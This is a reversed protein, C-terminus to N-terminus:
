NFLNGQGPIPLLEHFKVLSYDTNLYVGSDEDLEQNIILDVKLKAANYFSYVKNKVDEIFDKDEVKVDIPNGEYAVKWKTKGTFDPRCISLVADTKKVTRKTEQNEEKNAELQSARIKTATEKLETEKIEAIVKKNKDMLKLGTVGETQAADTVINQIITVPAYYVPGHYHNETKSNDVSSSNDIVKVELVTSAGKNNKFEYKKVKNDGGIHKGQKFKEGAFLKVLEFMNKFTEIVTPISQVILPVQGTMYLENLALPIDFSGEKFPQVKIELDNGSEIQSIERLSKSTNQLTKILVNVDIESSGDYKITLDANKLNEQEFRAFGKDKIIFGEIERKSIERTIKKIPKEFSAKKLEVQGKKIDVKKIVNKEKKVVTIKKAPKKM